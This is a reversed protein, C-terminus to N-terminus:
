QLYIFYQCNSSIRGSIIRLSSSPILSSGTGWISRIIRHSFDSIKEAWLKQSGANRAQSYYKVEKAGVECCIRDLDEGVPPLHSKPTLSLDIKFKGRQGFLVNKFGRLGGVM